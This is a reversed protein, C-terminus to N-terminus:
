AAKVMAEIGAAVSMLSEERLPLSLIELGVPLEPGNPDEELDRTKGAPVSVAPFLLQSGIITNTPFDLCTWRGSLVDETKPPLVQCTPYVVADLQWRAFVSAVVRQFKAQVLMAETYHPNKLYDTPGKVIADILDLAKHYAGAAHLDELKIHSLEPRSACFANIDAKSRLVYASSATKYHDLDPISMDILEAGATNLAQLTKDPPSNAIFELPM